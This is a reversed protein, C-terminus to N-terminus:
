VCSALRRLTKPLPRGGTMIALLGVDIQELIERLSVILDTNM